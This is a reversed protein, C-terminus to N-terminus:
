ILNYDNMIEDIFEETHGFMAQHEDTKENYSVLEYQEHNTMLIAIHGVGEKEFLIYENKIDYGEEKQKEMDWVSIQNDELFEHIAKLIPYRKM